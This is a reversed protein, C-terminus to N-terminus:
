QCYVSESNCGPMKKTCSTLPVITTCASGTSCDLQAEVCPSPANCSVEVKMLKVLEGPDPTASGGAAVDNNGNEDLILVLNFASNEESWMATGFMCMDISFPFEGTSADMIRKSTFAHLRGGIQDEGNDIIFGHRLAIRLTPKAGAAFHTPDFKAIGRVWSSPNMCKSTTPAPACKDILGTDDSAEMGADDPLVGSDSPGSDMGSPTSSSCGVALLGLVFCALRTM